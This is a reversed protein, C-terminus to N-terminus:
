IVEIREDGLEEIHGSADRALRKLYVSWAFVGYVSAWVVYMVVRRYGDWPWGESVIEFIAGVSFAGYTAVMLISGAIIFNHKRRTVGTLFLVAAAIFVVGWIWLPMADEVSRLARNFTGDDGTIYDIGRVLPELSLLYMVMLSMDPQLGPEWRKRDTRVPILRPM